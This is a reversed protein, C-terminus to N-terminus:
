LGTYRHYLTQRSDHCVSLDQHVDKPRFVIYVHILIWHSVFWTSVVVPCLVLRIHWSYAVINDFHKHYLIVFTVWFLVPMYVLSLECCVKLIGFLLSQYSIQFLKSFGCCHCVISRFSSYFLGCNIITFNWFMIKNSCCM